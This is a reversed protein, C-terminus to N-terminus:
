LWGLLVWIIESGKKLLIPYETTAWTSGIGVGQMNQVAFVMGGTPVQNAFNASAIKWAEYGAKNAILDLELTVYSGPSIYVQETSVLSGNDYIRTIGLGSQGYIDINTVDKNYIKDIM